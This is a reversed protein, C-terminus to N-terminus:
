RRRTEASAHCPCRTADGVSKAERVESRRGDFEVIMSAPPKLGILIKFAEVAAVMAIFGATDARTGFPALLDADACAPCPPPEIMVAIKGPLDLRALILTATRPTRSLTRAASKAAASGALILVAHVAEGLNKAPAAKVDPNLARMEAMVRSAAAVDAPTHIFITGTGAGAMYALAAEIDSLDGAILLRSDLLREQARGGVEPVIIQRSYREIQANSLAM